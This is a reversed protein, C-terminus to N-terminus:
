CSPLKSFGLAAGGTGGREEPDPAHGSFLPRKGCLGAGRGGPPATVEGGLMICNRCAGEVDVIDGGGFSMVCRLWCRLKALVGTERGTGIGAGMATTLGFVILDCGDLPEMDGGGSGWFTNEACGGAM